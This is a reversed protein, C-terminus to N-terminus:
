YKNFYVKIREQLQKIFKSYAENVNDEIIIDDFLGPETCTEMDYKALMIRRYIEDDTETNRNRLKTEVMKLSTPRLYVSYPMISTYKLNRVGDINLDMIAIHNNASAKRFANKTTGYINGSYETHELFNGNAVGKWIDEKSVYHYDIGNQEMPRPFRSTHSTVFGFINGYEKLLKRIITSKGAGSPGSLIISRVMGNM